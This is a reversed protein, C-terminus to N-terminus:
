TEGNVELGSTGISNTHIFRFFACYAISDELWVRTTMFGTRWVTLPLSLLKNLTPKVLSVSFLNVLFIEFIKGISKTSLNGHTKKSFETNGLYTLLTSRIISTVDVMYVMIRLIVNNIIKNHQTSKTM